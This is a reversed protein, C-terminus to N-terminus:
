SAAVKRIVGLQVLSALLALAEREEPSLPIAPRSVAEYHERRERRYEDTTM